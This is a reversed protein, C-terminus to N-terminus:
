LVFDSAALGTVGRLLLSFDASGDGNLDAEVRTDTGSVVVARLERTEGNFDAAGIFRFRQDGNAVNGDADIAALNLRDVGRVFGIVQDVGGALSSDAAAFWRFVDGGRGGELRDAGLGGALTDRGDGGTLRDAGGGGLLEDDGKGGDLADAGLEGRLRDRGDAGTLRDGGGAGLLDDDGKGGNLTDAFDSGALTQDARTGTRSVGALPRAGFIVYAAGSYSGNPDAGFAGVILDDLGDGNLDGAGAVSAGSLDSAAEGEIRFGDAGNLSAVDVDAAFGGAKGFLVYSAGSGSGNPDAFGAGVILDDFGDGNVDGASAVSGGSRDEAAAGLIRFGATGNLATLDLSAAFGGAKGFVVYSAGSNNGGV